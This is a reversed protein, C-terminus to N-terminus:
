YKSFSKSKAKKPHKCKALVPKTGSKTPHNVGHPM